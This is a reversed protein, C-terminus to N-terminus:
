CASTASCRRSSRSASSSASRCTRSPRTPDVELGFEGSLRRIDARATQRDLFGFRRTPEFGLVVNEAVTFVPVLMFHQHVMGIGQRIADGPDAFHVPQDDIRIEGADAQLM